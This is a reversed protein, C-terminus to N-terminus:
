LAVRYPLIPFDLSECPFYLLFAVCRCTYKESLIQTWVYFYHVKMHLMWNSYRRRIMSYSLMRILVWNFSHSVNWVGKAILLTKLFIREFTTAVYAFSYVVKLQFLANNYGSYLYIVSWIFFLLYNLQITVFAVILLRMVCYHILLLIFLNGNLILMFNLSSIIKRCFTATQQQVYSFTSVILSIGLM